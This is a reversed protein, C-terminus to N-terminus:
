CKGTIEIARGSTTLFDPSAELYTEDSSRTVRQTDSTSTGPPYLHNVNLTEWNHSLDKPLEICQRDLFCLDNVTLEAMNPSLLNDSIDSDDSHFDFNCPSVNRCDSQNATTPYSSSSYDSDLSSYSKGTIYPYLTNPSELTLNNMLHCPSTSYNSYSYNSTNDSCIDPTLYRSDYQNDNYEISNPEYFSLLTEPIETRISIESVIRGGSISIFMYILITFTLIPQYKLAHNHYTM